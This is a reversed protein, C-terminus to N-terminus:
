NLRSYYAMFTAEFKSMKIFSNITNISAKSSDQSLLHHQLFARSNEQLDSKKAFFLQLKCFVFFLARNLTWKEQRLHITVSKEFNMKYIMVHGTWIQQSILFRYTAVGMLDVWLQSKKTFFNPKGSFLQAKRRCSRNFHLYISWSFDKGIKLKGDKGM